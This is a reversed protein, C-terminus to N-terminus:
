QIIGKDKLAKYCNRDEHFAIAKALADRPINKLQTNTNFISTKLTKNLYRALNGAYDPNRPCYKTALQSLTTTPFYARSGGETKWRQVMNTLAAWGAELTSFIAFKRDDKKGSDGRMKLNWPNKNKVARTDGYKPYSKDWVLEIQKVIQDNPIEVLGRSSLKALVYLRGYWTKEEDTFNEGSSLNTKFSALKFFPVKQLNSLCTGKLETKGKENLGSIFKDRNQEIKLLFEPKARVISLENQASQEVNNPNKDSIEQSKELISSPM